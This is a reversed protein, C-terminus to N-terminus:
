SAWRVPQDANEEGVGVLGLSRSIRDANQPAPVVPLAGASPRKAPTRQQATPRTLGKRTPGSRRRRAAQGM